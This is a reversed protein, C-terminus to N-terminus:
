DQGRFQHNEASIGHSDSPSRSRQALIYAFPCDWGEKLANVTIIYRIGCNRDLLNENKLENVNATKIAIEEKPIGIKILKEKIQEFTASNKDTKPQAQFLVIPRIYAGGNKEQEVAKQELNKRLELASTVVDARDKQNYVIVPLKVMNEKKLELSDAYSIINSNERPTATLDLIFAPNINKLMEISLESTANHSEDVICVPNLQNIVQILANEEIDPLLKERRQYTPVFPELYSNDQYIKRDEKSRSRFTDFSLVLISLQERVSTPNFSGGFLLDKKEYVEVRNNFCANIKQRYPHHPNKLNRVTQEM